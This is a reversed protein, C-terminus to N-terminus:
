NQNGSESFWTNQYSLFFVLFRNGYYLKNNYLFYGDNGESVIENRYICYPKAKFRAKINEIM